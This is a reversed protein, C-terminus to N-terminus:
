GAATWAALIWRRVEDDIDDASRLELHHTFRGGAIPTIQKWRPSDDRHRFSFTLVLPAGRGRDLYRDPTWVVAVNRQRKFAVQSKTVRIEANGLADIEARLADFIERADDRGAFHNHLADEVPDLPTM